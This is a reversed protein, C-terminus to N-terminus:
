APFKERSEQNFTRIIDGPGKGTIRPAGQLIKGGHHILPCCGEPRGGRMKHIGVAKRHIVLVRGSCIHRFDRLGGVRIRCETGDHRRLIKGESIGIAMDVHKPVGVLGHTLVPEAGSHLGAVGLFCFVAKDAAARMFPTLDDGDNEPAALVSYESVRCSKEAPSEAKGLLAFGGGNGRSPFGGLFGRARGRCGFLVAV